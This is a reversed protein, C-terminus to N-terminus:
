PVVVIPAQWFAAKQGEPDLVTVQCDYRGPALDRLPIEFHLPVSNLRGDSGGAVAVPRTESSKEQGRYFSVQAVLPQAGSEGPRYAHLYVYLSQDKRFVRTVSPILKQGNRVLPNLGDQRHKGRSANYLADELDM